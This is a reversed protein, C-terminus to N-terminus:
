PSEETKCQADKIHLIKRTILARLAHNARVCLGFPPKKETHSLKHHLDNAMEYYILM